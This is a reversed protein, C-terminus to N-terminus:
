DKITSLFASKDCLLIISYCVSAHVSVGSIGEISAELDRLREAEKEAQDIEQEGKNMREALTKIEGLASLLNGHDPHEAPTYKLLDQFM